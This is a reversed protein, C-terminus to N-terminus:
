SIFITTGNTSVRTFSDLQTDVIDIGNDLAENLLEILKDAISEAKKKREKEKRLAIIMNCEEENLEMIHTKLPEM